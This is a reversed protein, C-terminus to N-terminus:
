RQLFLADNRRNHVIGIVVVQVKMEDIYYHINYPFIKTHAIRVNKYRVAFASPMKLINLIAEKVSSTFKIDLGVQLEAYWQKAALIDNEVEDLYYAKYM